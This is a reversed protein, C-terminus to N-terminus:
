SNGNKTWPRPRTSGIQAGLQRKHVGLRRKAVPKTGLTPRGQRRDNRPRLTSPSSDGKRTRLPTFLFQHRSRTADRKDFRVSVLNDLM